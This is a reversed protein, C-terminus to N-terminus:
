LVLGSNILQIKVKLDKELFFDVISKGEVFSTHNIVLGINKYKLSQFYLEPQEAGVIISQADVRYVVISFFLIFFCALRNM